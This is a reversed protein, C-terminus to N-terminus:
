LYVYFNFLLFYISFYVLYFFFYLGFFYQSLTFLFHSISLYMCLFYQSLGFLFSSISYNSVRAVSHGIWRGTCLTAFPCIQGCGCGCSSIHGCGCSIKERTNFINYKEMVNCWSESDILNDCISSIVSNCIRCEAFADSPLILTWPAIGLPSHELWGCGHRWLYTQWNLCICKSNEVFVNLLKSSDQPSYKLWGGCGHRWLHFVRPEANNTQNWRWIVFLFYYM